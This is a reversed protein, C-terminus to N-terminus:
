LCVLPEAIASSNRKLPVNYELKLLYIIQLQFICFAGKQIINAM